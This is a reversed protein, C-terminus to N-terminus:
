RRCVCTGPDSAGYCWWADAKGGLKTACDSAGPDPTGAAPMTTRAGTCGSGPPMMGLYEVSYTEGPNAACNTQNIFVCSTVGSAVPPPRQQAGCNIFWWGAGARQADSTAQSCTTRQVGTTAVIRVVTIDSSAPVTPLTLVDKAKALNAIAGLLPGFDEVVSGEVVDFGDARFDQALSLFRVGAAFAVNCPPTACGSATGPLLAMMASDPTCAPVLNAEPPLNSAGPHIPCFAVGAPPPGSTLATCSDAPAYTDEPLSANTCKVSSVIFAAGFDVYPQQATPKQGAPVVLGKFYAELEPIPIERSSGNLKDWVCSDTGQFGRLLLAKTPDDPTSCDDEDGVWVVVLKAGQHPWDSTPTGISKQMALRGAQLHQEQGSGCTGVFVNAQFQAIRADIEATNVTPTFLDKTFHIVNPNTGQAVFAGAPYPAGNTAVGQFCGPLVGFNFNRGVVPCDDGTACGVQAPKCNALATCCQTEYGSLYRSGSNTPPTPDTFTAVSYCTGGAGCAQGPTCATAACSGPICCQNGGVCKYGYDPQAIFISSTTIAIHFELPQLGRSARDTNFTTLANVFSGFNNKLANQKDQASFSDDVVFLIDAVSVDKLTEQQSGPQIVCSGVPNFAYDQCAVVAVAALTLVALAIARRSM